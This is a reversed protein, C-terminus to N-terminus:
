FRVSYEVDTRNKTVSDDSAQKFLDQYVTLTSNNSVAYHATARFGKSNAFHDETVYGSDVAKDAINVYALSYDFDGKKVAKGFKVEAWYGSAKQDNNKVYEMNLVANPAVKTSANIGYYADGKDLYSAGVNWDGISTGLDLATVSESADKGSFASFSAKDFTTSLKAGSVGNVDALLGHGVFVPQKGIKLDANDFKFGIYGQEFKVTNDATSSSAGNVDMNNNMIMRGHLYINNDIQNDMALRIRNTITKDAGSNKQYEIRADGSFAPAAAFISSTSITLAALVAAALLKKKM